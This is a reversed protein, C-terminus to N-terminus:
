HYPKLRGDICIIAICEKRAVCQICRMTYAGIMCIIAICEGRALCQICPMDHLKSKESMLTELFAPNRFATPMSLSKVRNMYLLPREWDSAKAIRQLRIATGEEEDEEDKESETIDWLDDPMCKLLDAVTDQHRWLVNLAPNLFFKSSRALASLAHSADAPLSQPRNSDLQSCIMEVIELIGLGRHVASPVLSSM